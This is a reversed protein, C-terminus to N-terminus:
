TLLPNLRRVSTWWYLAETLSLFHLCHIQSNQSSSITNGIGM